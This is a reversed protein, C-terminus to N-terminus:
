RSDVLCRSDLTLHSLATMHLFHHGEVVLYEGALHLQQLSGPMLRLLNHHMFCDDDPEAFSVGPPPPALDLHLSVLQPCLQGLDPIDALLDANIGDGILDTPNSFTVGPLYAGLHQLAPLQQLTGELLQLDTDMLELRTLSSGFVVPRFVQAEMFSWRHPRLGDMSLGAVSSGHRQLWGLCAALSDGIKDLDVYLQLQEDDVLTSSADRWSRCVLAHKNTGPICRSRAQGIVNRIAPAPL